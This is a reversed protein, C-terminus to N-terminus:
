AKGGRHGATVPRSGGNRRTSERHRAQREANQARKQWDGWNQFRVHVRRGNLELEELMGLDIAHEVIRRADETGPLFADDALRKFTTRVAGGAGQMKALGLLSVVVMPGASGHTEGLAEVSPSSTFAADLALWMGPRGNPDASTPGSAPRAGPSAPARTPHEM